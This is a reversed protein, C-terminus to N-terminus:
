TPPVVPTGTGRFTVRGGADTVAIAEGQVWLSGSRADLDVCEGLVAKAVSAPLEATVEWTGLWQGRPPTITIEVSAPELSLGDAFLYFPEGDRPRSIPLM